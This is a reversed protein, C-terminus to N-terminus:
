PLYLLPDRPKERKRIEFHLHPGSARGSSGVSAIQQGRDVFQGRKVYLKQAHAYVTRYNGAHKVIVVNGYDGLRGSHIVKGAEAARIRTGRRAALDVGEHPRGWRRGFHSTVQAGRVPWTFDLDSNGRSERRAAQRARSAAQRDKSVSPASTKRAVSQGRKPRGGERPIWLRQGTKLTTVDRVGNAKAIARPEVGYRRGLRYLNEGREVEHYFGSSYSACAILGAVLCLGLLALPRPRRTGALPRHM